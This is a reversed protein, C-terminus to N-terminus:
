NETANLNLSYVSVLSILYQYFKILNTDIFVKTWTAINKENNNIKYFM